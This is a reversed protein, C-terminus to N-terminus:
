RSKGIYVSSNVYARIKDGLPCLNDSTFLVTELPRFVQLWHVHKCPTQNQGIRFRAVSQCKLLKEPAWLFGRASRADFAKPMVDQSERAESERHTREAEPTVGAKHLLVGDKWLGLGEFRVVNCLSIKNVLSQDRM